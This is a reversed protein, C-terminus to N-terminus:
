LNRDEEMNEITKLLLARLTTQEEESLGRVLMEEAELFLGKMQEHCQRGKETLTVYKKRADSESISREVLEKEEMRDLIGGATSPKVKLHEIVECQPLQGGHHHLYLLVHTQAPTMDFRSMRADMRERALHAARNLLPGFANRHDM